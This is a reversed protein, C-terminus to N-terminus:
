LCISGRLSDCAAHAEVRAKGNEHQARHGNSDKNVVVGRVGCLELAYIGTGRVLDCWDDVNWHRASATLKRTISERKARQTHGDISDATGSRVVRQRFGDCAKSDQANGPRRTDAVPLCGAVGCPACTLVADGDRGCCCRIGWEALCGRRFLIHQHHKKLSPHPSGHPPCCFRRAAARVQGASPDSRREPGCCPRGADPHM